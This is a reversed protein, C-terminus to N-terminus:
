YAFYSSNYYAADMYVPNWGEKLLGVAQKHYAAGDWTKDYSMGSILAFFIAFLIATIIINCCDKKNEEINFIWICSGILPFLVNCVTISIGFLFLVATIAVIGTIWILLFVATQYIYKDLLDRYSQRM